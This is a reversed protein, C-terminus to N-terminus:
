ESRLAEMPSKRAAQLAPYLGFLLGVVAAMSIGLSIAGLPLAFPWEINFVRTAVISVVVTISIAIGTGITGGTITLFLAEFLFQQLVDRNTAGLAKRLGIERTRETVSVLMINMIGVGGVVLAIAAIAALFVTLVSTVTSLREVIDQQTTVFFDDKSPDDIRHRERLTARIDDAVQDVLTPDSASILIEHFYDIGLLYTQATSYPVVVLEDPNFLSVQGSKPLVGVVRFNVDKVKIAQGVAPETDFLEQRVRDGIVAVRAQSRIDDITFFAGESPEIQLISAIAEGSWGLITPRYVNKQYAVSGGVAVAPEVQSVNPVNRSQRLADVDRKKLSDSLITDAFDSPGEPERGPRVVITNAGVGQVQALIISQAGQGLAVVLVIAAVGIIIGLMTLFSRGFNTHLSATATVLLDFTTM